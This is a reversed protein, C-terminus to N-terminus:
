QRPPETEEIYVRAGPDACIQARARVAGFWGRRGKTPSKVRGYVIVWMDRQQVAKSEGSPSMVLSEHYGLTTTKRLRKLKEQLVQEDVNLKGPLATPKTEEFCGLFVTYPWNPDSSAAGSCGNESLWAGDLLSSSMRGVVAVMKGTYHPLHELVECVSLPKLAEAAAAAHSVLLIGVITRFQVAGQCMGMRVSLRTRM